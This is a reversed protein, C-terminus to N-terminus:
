KVAVKAPGIVTAAVISRSELNMIRVLDGARGQAMARGETQITLAGFVYEMSVISNRAVLIPSLQSAASASRAAPNEAGSRNSSNNMLGREEGAREGANEPMNGSAGGAPPATVIDGAFSAPAILCAIACIKIVNFRKSM